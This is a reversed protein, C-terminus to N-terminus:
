HETSVHHVPAGTLAKFLSSKGANPRGALVVRFPREGLARQDLQRRLLTVLALGKALRKLLDTQDIFAVDEDAFDLGAEVDALLNLLDERLEHLPRAVGGALQALAQKLEDRSGAEVVALVAEAQTLDLK